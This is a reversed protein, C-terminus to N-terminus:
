SHARKPNHTNSQPEQAAEVREAGRLAVQRAAGFALPREAVFGILCGQHLRCWVEGDTWEVRIEVLEDSLSGHLAADIELCLAGCISAAGDTTDRASMGAVIPADPEHRKWDCVVFASRVHPMAGVTQAWEPWDNPGGPPRDARVERSVGGAALVPVDTQRQIERLQRTLEQVAPLRPDELRIRDIMSKAGDTDRLAIRIEAEVLDTVRTHGDIEIARQLSTLAETHMGQHLYLRALVVHAPAYDPHHKLGGKCVSFARGFDGRKRYAEALAAFVQSHPNDALISLCRQIRDDLQAISLM